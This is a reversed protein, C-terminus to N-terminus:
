EKDGLKCSLRPIACRNYESYSNMLHHHRNAQIEVSEYIQREYASKAYKIVKIGFKINDMEEKDHKDVLHKLMHSKTSLNELDSLHEFSREYLSRGSEGVYKHIRIKAELEKQKEKDGDAKEEAERQDNELCTMCWSEYVLSRRSCDQTMQKGTRQKTLCLLCKDRGCDQGQWPDARHLTDVLKLGSREVIKIRYGTTLELQNEAERMRKALESGETFPVFMVAKANGNERKKTKDQGTQQEQGQHQEQRPRKRPSQSQEQQGDEEEENRKRKFWTSKETLKKKCRGALTSKATRYFETGEKKRRQIKRRWGLVGSVVM